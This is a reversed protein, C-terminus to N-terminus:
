ARSGSSFADYRALALQATLEADEALIYGEAVLRAAASRAQRLYDERDRYREAISPRPDDRREREEPTAPFPCTSGLMDLIQGAGGIESHRPNWGTYTAVPVELDPLRVGGTENGDADVASVYNPYPAGVRPPYAGVGREADPGFELRRTGRLGDPSPVALGPIARFTALTSEAPVATGAALSPFVSPPPEVGRTVWADLNLLAARELDVIERNAPHAPDVAFHLIGDNQEYPGVAGFAVGDAFPARSQVELRTVAV